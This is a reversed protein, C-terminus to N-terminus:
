SLDVKVAVANESSFGTVFLWARKKGDEKKPDIGILVAAAANRIKSGDDEWLLKKDWTGTTNKSPTVYWVMSGEKGLPDQGYKGLDIGRTLGPMIYGSADGGVDSYPDSFYSPNDTTSDIDINGEVAITKEVSQLKGVWLHGGIASSVLIDDKNPGHAMGNPNHLKDLAVDAQVSGDESVTAHIVNSWKAGPWFEEITRLYGELYYHDNTVYIETPSVAYIDNPTKISPHAITRVYNVSDSGIVHHFVEIRSAVKPTTAPDVDSSGGSRPYFAENPVHNVAFIYVAEGEPRELDALVDIGHTIFPGDFNEFQLRKSTKTEPDITHISGKSNWAMSADDYYALPPFWAFRTASVDECATFLTNTLPYYHIDECHTTDKITVLDGPYALPTSKLERFMGIKTIFGHTPPGYLYAALGALGALLVGTSAM